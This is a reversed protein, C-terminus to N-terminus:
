IQGAAAQLLIGECRRRQRVIRSVAVLSPFSARRAPNATNCRLM